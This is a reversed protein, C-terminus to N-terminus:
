PIDLISEFSKSENDTLKINLSSPKAFLRSIRFYPDQSIGPGLQADVILQRSISIKVKKMFWAKAYYGQFTREFGTRMPHKIRLVLVQTGDSAPKLWKVKMKGAEARLKAENTMAGGGCGGGPTKIAVTQMLHQGNATEVIVRVLSNKELRIRTSLAFRRQQQPLNFTATHLIPNADTFLHISKIKDKNLDVSFSFPVIAVNEAQSPATISIQVGADQVQVTPFFTDKIVEWQEVIPAACVPAAGLNLILLIVLRWCFHIPSLQM